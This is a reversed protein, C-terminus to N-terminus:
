RAGGNPVNVPQPSVAPVDGRLRQVQARLAHFAQIAEVLQARTDSLARQADLVELFSFRGEAYGATAFRAAQEASPLATRRLTDVSRWALALRQEAAVLTAVLLNRGREAEAEARTLEAQARAIGGQNRDYIPLPISAGAVFATEGAEGYRRVGGSVTVDPVANARQLSLNARQQAIATDLRSLEPSTGLRALPDAPTPRGPSSGIQEFWPQRPALEVRPVGVLVALEALAIEVERGAREAAIGATARVVEAREAQLLPDRGAEVRARAARLTEGALRAREREVGVLRRAAEATALATVVERAVELRVGAFDLEAVEGSRAAFAIRAGRKGGLEIRQILGVTSEITRFGRTEQRGGFGGFNEFNGNIEPNPRLRAQLADALVAQRAAGAGRLAPSVTLAAEVAQQPSVIVLAAVPPRADQAAALVPVVAFLAALRVLKSSM